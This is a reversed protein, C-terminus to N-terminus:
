LYYIWDQSGLLILGLHQKIETTVYFMSNKEESAHFLKLCSCESRNM